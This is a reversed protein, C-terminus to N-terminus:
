MHVGEGRIRISNYGDTDLFVETCSTPRLALPYQACLRRAAGGPELAVATMTNEYDPERVVTTAVGEQGARAALGALTHEDPVAVVVLFNSGDVWTRTLTPWQCAFRFAAHTSQAM